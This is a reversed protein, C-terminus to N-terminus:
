LIYMNLEYSNVNTGRNFVQIQLMKKQEKGDKFLTLSFKNTDGEQPKPKGLGIKEAWEEKDLEYGKKIAFSEAEQIASTYSNHYVRYENSECLSLIYQKFKM